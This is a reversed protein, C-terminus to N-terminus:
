RVVVKGVTNGNIDMLRRSDVYWLGDCEIQEALEKLIRSVEYAPGLRDSIAAFAANELRIKLSITKPQQM